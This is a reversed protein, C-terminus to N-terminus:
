IAGDNKVAEKWQGSVGLARMAVPGPRGNQLCPAPQMKHPEKSGASNASTGNILYSQLRKAWRKLM